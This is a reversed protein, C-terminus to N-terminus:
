TNSRDNQKTGIVQCWDQFEEIVEHIVYTQGNMIILDGGTLGRITPKPKYGDIWFNWYETSTEVMNLHKLETPKTRQRTLQIKIPESYQKQAKGYEDTDSSIFLLLEANIKPSLGGLAASAIAHLNM